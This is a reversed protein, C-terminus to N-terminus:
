HVFKSPQYAYVTGEKVGIYLTSEDHGFSRICGKVHDTWAPKGSDARYAVIDGKCNGAIVWDKWVHPQESTWEREALQTWLLRDFEDSFKLLVGRSQGDKKEIGFVYETEVGGRSSWAFRGNPIATTALNNLPRGTAPDLGCIHGDAAGFYLVDKYMFLSTTVPSSPQQSWIKRGARNLAFITGDHAVFDVIEGDTVPATRVECQPDFGSESFRWNVKGSDVAVAIWEDERTGFVVGRDMEAFSTSPGSAKLKWRVKGTKPEFAYVYGGGEAGCGHDTSIFLTGKYLL